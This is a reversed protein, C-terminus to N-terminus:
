GADEDALFPLFHWFFHFGEQFTAASRAELLSYLIDESQSITITLQM